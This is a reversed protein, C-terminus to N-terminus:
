FVPATETEGLRFDSNSNTSRTIDEAERDAHKPNTSYVLAEGHSRLQDCGHCYPVDEFCGSRHARRLAEYAEGRLIEEITELAANGVPIAENFDFCCPSVIGKWNVQLPGDVPRGCSRLPAEPEVDRYSRGSGYNHPRWIEVYDCLDETLEIFAEREHRNEELELFFISLQPLLTERGDLIGVRGIQERM